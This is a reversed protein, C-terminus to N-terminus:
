CIQLINFKSTEPVEPMGQTTKKAEETTSDSNQCTGDGQLILPIHM